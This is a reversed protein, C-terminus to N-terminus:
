CFGGGDLRHKSPRMRILESQGGLQFDVIVADFKRHNLLRLAASREQCVDLSISLEQLSYSFQQITVPDTSVLLAVAIAM